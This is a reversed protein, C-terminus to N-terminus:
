RDLIVLVTQAAAAADKALALFAAHESSRQMFTVRERWPEKDSPLEGGFRDRWRTLPFTDVTLIKCAPNIAAMMVAMYLASGGANTGTEIILDPKIDYLIETIVQLDFPFQGMRVGMFKQKHHLQNHGDYHNLIDSFIKDHRDVQPIERSPRNRVSDPCRNTLMFDEIAPPAFDMYVKKATAISDSQLSRREYYFMNNAPERLLSGLFCIGCVLVTLFVILLRSRCRYQYDSHKGM